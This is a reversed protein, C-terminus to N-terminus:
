HQFYFYSVLILWRNVLIYCLVALSLFLVLVISYILRSGQSPKQCFRNHLHLCSDLSTTIGGSGNKQELMLWM